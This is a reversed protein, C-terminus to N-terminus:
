CRMRVTAGKRAAAERNKRMIEKFGGGGGGGGGMMANLQGAVGGPGATPGGASGSSVAPSTEVPKPAKKLKTGAQTAYSPAGAVTLKLM